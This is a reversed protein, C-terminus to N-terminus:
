CRTPVQRRSRSRPLRHRAPLHRHRRLLQIRPASDDGDPQNLHSGYRHYSVDPPRRPRRPRAAAAASRTKTCAAARRPRVPRLQPRRAAPRHRRRPRRRQGQPRNRYSKRNCLQPLAAPRVPQHRLRVHGARRHPRLPRPRLGQAAALAAPRRRDPRSLRQPRRRRQLGGPRDRGAVQHQGHGDSPGGIFVSAIVLPRYLRVARVADYLVRDHTWKAFAEEKTKSFGFDVETGFFQDVGM